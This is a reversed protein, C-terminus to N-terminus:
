LEHSFIDKVFHTFKKTVPLSAISSQYYIYIALDSFPYETKLTKLGLKNARKALPDLVFSVHETNQLISILAAASNTTTVIKPPKLGFRGFHETLYRAAFNDNEFAAIESRSLDELSAVEFAALNSRENCIAVYNIDNLFVRVITNDTSLKPTEAAIMIDIEGLKLKEAIEEAVGTIFDFNYDPFERRLRKLVKPLLTTTWVVGLGIRLRKKSHNTIFEIEDELLRSANLISKSHNYLVDGLPTPEMGNAHRIFLPTGLREETKKLNISLAPQSITLIEAAKRMSKTEHIVIFQQAFKSLLMSELLKIM